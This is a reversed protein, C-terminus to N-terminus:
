LESLLTMFNIGTNYANQYEVYVYGDEFPIITKYVELNLGQSKFIFVSVQSGRCKVTQKVYADYDQSFEEELAEYLKDVPVSDEDELYKMRLFSQESNVYTDWGDMYYAYEYNIPILMEFGGYLTAINWDLTYTKYHTEYEYVFEDTLSETEVEFTQEGVESDKTSEATTNIVVDGLDLDLLGSNETPKESTVEISVISSEETSSESVEESSSVYESTVCGTTDVAQERGM